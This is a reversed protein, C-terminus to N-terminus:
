PAFLVQVHQYTVEAKKASAELRQQLAAENGKSAIPTLPQFTVTLTEPQWRKEKQLRAVLATVDFTESFSGENGHGADKKEHAIKGFFDVTGAYYKRKIEASLEGSPLNLYIGYVFTPPEKASIGSIQLFVKGASNPTLAMARWTAMHKPAVHLSELTPTLGLPKKAVPPSDDKFSAAARLLKPKETPQAFVLLTANPLPNPTDDYRYGLQASSLFDRVKSTIKTGSDDIYFYSKDLFTSDSPNQRGNGQNLWRNLNRDINCHHLWFIPDQGATEFTTMNGGMLNHVSGHPSGEFSRSFSPPATADFFPILALAAVTRDVVITPPLASGDNIIRTPDYLPNVGTSDAANRFAVPLTGDTQWDWYPLTLEPDGSMERLIREFNYLYGRHWVFFYVSGHQCTKFLDVASPPVPDNTGHINAQFLWSRPNDSPLAKMAAVGRKLSDLERETLHNINKRVRVSARPNPGQEPCVFVPRRSHIRKFLGASVDSAALWGLLGVLFCGVFLRSQFILCRMLTETSLFIVTSVM